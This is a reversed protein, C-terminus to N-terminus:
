WGEVPTNACYSYLQYFTVVNLPHDKIEKEEKQQKSAVIYHLISCYNNHYFIDSNQKSLNVAIHKM